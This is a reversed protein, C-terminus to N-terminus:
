IYYSNSSRKFITNFQQFAFIFFLTKKLFINQNLYYLIFSIFINLSEHNTFMHATLFHALKM